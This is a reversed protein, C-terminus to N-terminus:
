WKPCSDKWTGITLRQKERIMVNIASVRMEGRQPCMSRDVSINFGISWHKRKPLTFQRFLNILWSSCIWLGENELGFYKLTAKNRIYGQRDEDSFLYLKTM